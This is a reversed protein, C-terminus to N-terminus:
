VNKVSLKEDSLKKFKTLTKLKNEQIQLLLRRIYELQISSFDYKHNEPEKNIEAILYNINDNTNSDIENIHKVDYINKAVMKNDIVYVPEDDLFALLVHEDSSKLKFSKLKKLEKIYLVTNLINKNLEPRTM